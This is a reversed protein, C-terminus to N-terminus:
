LYDFDPGSILQVKVYIGVLYLSTRFRQMGNTLPTSCSPLMGERIGGGSIVPGHSFSRQGKGTMWIHM